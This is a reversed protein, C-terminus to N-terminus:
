PTLIDARAASAGLRRAAGRVPGTPRGGSVTRRRHCPRSYSTASEARCGDERFWRERRRPRSERRRPPVCVTCMRATNADSSSPRGVNIVSQPGFGHYERRGARSSIAGDNEARSSTELRRTLMMRDDIKRPHKTM